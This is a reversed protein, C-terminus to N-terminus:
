MYSVDATQLLTAARELFSADSLLSSETAASTDISSASLPQPVQPLPLHVLPDTYILNTLRKAPKSETDHVGNM